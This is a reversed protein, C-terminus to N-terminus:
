SNTRVTITGDVASRDVQVLKQSKQDGIPIVMRGGPALQDVLAAPMTAAAAGVHIATFPGFREAGRWGDGHVVILKGDDANPNLGDAKLNDISLKVLEGVVEIGVVASGKKKVPPAPTAKGTGTTDTGDTDTSGSIAAAGTLTAPLSSVDDSDGGTASAASAAIMRSMYGVLVGSGCGIDM